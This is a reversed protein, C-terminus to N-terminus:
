GPGRSAIAGDGSRAAHRWKLLWWTTILDDTRGIDLGTLDQFRAVRHRVSNRHLHLTKATAEVNQDRDLLTLVTNEIAAGGEGLEDLRALREASLRAALPEAATAIPLPLLTPLDVAGIVDFALATRLAEEADAFSAHADGLPAAPGIAVTTGEPASPRRPALAYIQDDITGQLVRLSSTAGARRLHAEAVGAAAPDACSIRVTFYDAALDLGYLKGERVLREDTMRGAALDRLFDALRMADRRAATVEERRYVDGVVAANMIAWRWGLDMVEVLLDPELGLEVAAERTLEIVRRAGLQITRISLDLPTGLDWWRRALAGIETGDSDEPLTGSRVQALWVQLTDRTNERTTEVPIETYGPIQDRYLATLDDVLEELRPELRDAVRGMAVRLVEETGGDAASLTERGQDM